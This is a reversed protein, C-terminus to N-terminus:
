KSKLKNLIKILKMAEFWNLNERIIFERFIGSIIVSDNCCFYSTVTDSEKFVYWTKNHYYDDLDANM